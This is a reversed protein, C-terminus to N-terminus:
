IRLKNSHNYPGQWHVRDQASQIWDVEIINNGDIDLDGFSKQREPEYKEPGGLTRGIRSIEEEKM